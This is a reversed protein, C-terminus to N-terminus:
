KSNKPRGATGKGGAQKRIEPFWKKKLTKKKPEEKESLASKKIAQIVTSHEVFEKSNKIKGERLLKIGEKFITEKLRKMKAPYTDPNPPIPQTTEQELFEENKAVKYLQELSEKKTQDSFECIFQYLIGQRFAKLLTEAKEVDGSELSEVLGAPVYYQKRPLWKLLEGPNVKGQGGVAPSADLIRTNIADDILAFLEKAYNNIYHGIFHDKFAKKVRKKTAKEDLDFFEYFNLEKEIIEIRTQILLEPHFLLVELSNREGRDYESKRFRISWLDLNAMKQYPINRMKRKKRRGKLPIKGM